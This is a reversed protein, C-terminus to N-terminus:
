LRLGLALDFNRQRASRIDGAHFRKQLMGPSPKEIHGFPHLAVARPLNSAPRDRRLSCRLSTREQLNITIACADTDRAGSDITAAPVMTVECSSTCVLPAPNKSRVASIARKTASAAQWSPATASNM